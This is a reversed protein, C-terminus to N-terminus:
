AYRSKWSRICAAKSKKATKYDSYNEPFNELMDGTINYNYAKCNIM